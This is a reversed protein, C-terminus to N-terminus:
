NARPATQGKEEAAKKENEEQMKRLERWRRYQDAKAPDPDEYDQLWFRFWDVSGGQSALRAAPNTLVHEDSDVMILDVPKHLVHLGEYAEWMLLLSARGLGVVMLPTDVKDLNFAPSRQLWQQLGTRFPPAGIIATGDNYFREWLMQQFYGGMWGDTVSAVELHLHGFTLMHMVVFCARSFGIVGIRNVDVLGDSVLQQAASEYQAEFCSAEEPTLDPCNDGGGVPAGAQLVMIGASALEQAANGSPFGGNPLFLSESFGHTQIVLPYRQGPKYGVPEYLAGKWHRGAQDKWQYLTADGLELGALQPNPDWVVRASEGRTGVLRPAENFAQKITMRLGDPGAEDPNGIIESVLQWTGNAFKYETAEVSFYDGRKNSAVVVHDDGGGVFRGFRISHYGAEVGGKGTAGKLTEVCDSAGSSLNVVAVCPRSPVSDKAKLFTGPLVVNQGGSSWSPAGRVIWGADTALPANTIEQIAGVELDIRVYRHVISGAHIRNPLSSYPPPYLTEWTAPVKSLPLSTIVSRGDPALALDGTGIIPAGEVTVKFRKGAVVAWLGKSSPLVLANVPDNPLILEFLFRGTGVIAANFSGTDATPTEVLDARTYVYHQRDRIDFTGVAETESTLQETTNKRLDALVLRYNGQNTRELFAVGSSDELWRWGIIEGREKGARSVQWLAAPAESEAAHMVFAVIDASRYFRLSDEVLNVNVQGRETYVALYEGNPSFSLARAEGLYLDSFYTIGIDDNVTFRTGERRTEGRM